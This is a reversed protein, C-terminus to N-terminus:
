KVKVREESLVFYLILLISIVCVAVAAAIGTVSKTFIDFGTIVQVVALVTGLIAITQEQSHRKFTHAMDRHVIVIDNISNMGLDRRGSAPIGIEYDTLGDNALVRLTIVNEGFQILLKDNESVGILNMMNSNLRAVSNKDDTDEAWDTKLIYEAKGIMLKLFWMRFRDCLGAIKTPIKKEPVTKKPVRILDVHSYVEAKDLYKIIKAKSKRYSDMEETSKIEDEEILQYYSQGQMKKYCSGFDEKAIEDSNFGAADKRSPVGKVIELYEEARITRLPRELYGMMLRYYRPLMVKKANLTGDKSKVRGNDQYDSKEVEIYIRSDTFRNFLLYDYRAALPLKEKYLETSLTIDKVQNAKPVGIEYEECGSEYVIVPIGRLGPLAEDNEFWERGFLTEILRNTLIVYEEPQGRLTGSALYGDLEKVSSEAAKHVRVTEHIGDFSCIHLFSNEKFGSECGGTIEIKDQPIQSRADAQWVRYVDYNDSAWDMSSLMSVIKTLTGFMLAFLKCDGAKLYRQNIDVVLLPLNLEQAVETLINDESIDATGVIDGSIENDRYMYEFMYEALRFEFSGRDTGGKNNVGLEVIHNESDHMRLEIVVEVPESRLGAIFEDYVKHREATGYSKQVYLARCGSEHALLRALSGTFQSAGIEGADFCNVSYPATVVVRPSGDMGRIFSKGKGKYKHAAFAKEYKKLRRLRKETIKKQRKETMQEM